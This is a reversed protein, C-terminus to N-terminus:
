LPKETTRGYRDELRVIDNQDFDGFALELVVLPSDSTELRHKIERAVFHDDGARLLIKKEGIIATGNGSLVHWFEDRHHHYQLSLSQSPNVTLIKVMSPKESSVWLEQGWPREERHPQPSQM